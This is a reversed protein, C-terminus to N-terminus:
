MWTAPRSRGRGQLASSIGEWRCIVMGPQGGSWQDNAFVRTWLHHDTGVVFVEMRGAARSAAAPSSFLTFGQGLDEWSQWHGDFVQRAAGELHQLTQGLTALHDERLRVDGCPPSCAVRPLRM